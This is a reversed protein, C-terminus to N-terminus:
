GDASSRAPRTPRFGFILDRLCLVGGPWLMRAIRDLAIAKWFDPLRHLVNRHLGRGGTTRHARLLSFRGAIRADRVPVGRDTKRATAGRRGMGTFFRGGAIFGYTWDAM